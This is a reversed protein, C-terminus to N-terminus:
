PNGHCGRNNKLKCKDFREHWKNVCIFKLSTFDITKLKLSYEIIGKDVLIIM